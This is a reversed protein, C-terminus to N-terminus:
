LTNKTLFPTGPANSPTGHDGPYFGNEVLGRVLRDPKRTGQHYNMSSELMGSGVHDGCTVRCLTNVNPMNHFFNMLGPAVASLESDFVEGNALQMRIHGGRTSASDIETYAIIDIDQAFIITDGNKVVWGFGEISNNVGNHIQWANYILDPGFVGAAYRHSLMTFLNRHGWGHDREAFGDVAFSTGQMTISGQISCGVDLHHPAIDEATRGTGPFGRFARHYDKVRLTAAVQAQRDDITWVQLGDLQEVRCVDDGGGWGLPLQDSDRLPLYVVHKYVGKPTVLNTWAAVKPGGEINYEHGIRHIGGVSHNLDYWHLWNSDQWKGEVGPKQRINHTEDYWVVSDRGIVQM